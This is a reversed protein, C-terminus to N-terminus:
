GEDLVKRIITALTRRDIPKMVFERIGAEKAKEESARSSYGTNLIIPINPRIKLIRKALEIGSIEPMTQDTIVLDFNEPTSQFKELAEVSNTVGTVAYGLRQLSAKQLGVIVEEYDVVLIRENGGPIAEQYKDESLFEIERKTHRAKSQQSKCLFDM